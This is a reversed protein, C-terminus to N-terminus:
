GRPVCRASGQSPAPLRLVRGKLHAVATTLPADFSWPQPTSVPDTRHYIGSERSM